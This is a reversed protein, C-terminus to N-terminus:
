PLREYTLVASGPRAQLTLDFGATMLERGTAEWPAGPADLDTFRYRAAPALGRLQVHATQYISGARRFAQVVGRGAEPRHYQWALWVDAGLSCPTLPYFDGFYNPAYDRWERVAQRLTDYPLTRDRLDWSPLVVPGAFNSRLEYPTFQRAGPCTGHFPIWLAFGYSQCQNSVVDFVYDSRYFPLARRMTELDNRSGGGACSDIVLGPHRRRLDDFLKLYGVVHHNETIGQREATDHSRWLEVPEVVNFDNRYIDIGEEDLITVIRDTLWAAAAPNGLYFLRSLRKTILNPLLWDPHDRFLENTPMIREPEFWLLTKLGRAHAHDTVARLGRPFRKRDVRLAIPEQWRGANEYWGADMWWCDVPFKEELYRDIFALQNAETAQVMIDFQESSSPMFMPRHPQGFPQPLNHARMWRRWGNQAGIWDGRWFQLAMLPSRIEEGPHLRLHVREQGATVRLGAQDDRDFAIVWAGPWGVALIVGADGGRELNFYPMVGASPRGKDPILRLHQGPELRSEQPQFDAPSLPFFTGFSHHLLFEGAGSRAWRAALAAVDALIPTDTPGTNKFYLTWEVTPFDRYSVAVCRVELGTAPDAYTLVREHRQADLDRETQRAPWAALLEAAPRGGYTFSFPLQAAAGPAAARFQDFWARAEAFEDTAATAPPPESALAAGALSAFILRLLPLRVM